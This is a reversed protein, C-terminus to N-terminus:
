LKQFVRIEFATNVTLETIEDLKRLKEESTHYYYPTMKVLAKIEERNGTFNSEVTVVEKPDYGVFATEDEENARPTEYLFEKLKYLHKEAPVVRLLYGKERTVRSFEEAYVPAFACIVADFTGSPLPLRMSSAVAFSVEKEQKAAAEIAFKSIDTGVVTASPFAKKVRIPLYGTGCGADLVANVGREGLLGVIREALPAYYGKAMVIKRASIMEKNDGPNLSNKGGVPLLNVYGSKAVDFCHGTECVLSKDKEKLEKGCHPCLFVTM